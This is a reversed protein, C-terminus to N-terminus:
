FLRIRAVVVGVEWLNSNKMGYSEKVKYYMFRAAILTHCLAKFYSVELTTSIPDYSNCVWSVLYASVVTGIALNKRFIDTWRHPIVM